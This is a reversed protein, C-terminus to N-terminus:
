SYYAGYPRSYWYPSHGYWGYFWPDYFGDFRYLQRSYTYDDDFDDFQYPEGYVTQPAEYTSDPYVGQTMDFDIIDNAISDGLLKQYNSRFQGRRNYEDVERDSGVYYVPRETTVEKKAEAKRDTKKPTFYMDDNQAFMGLPIASILLSILFQKKM